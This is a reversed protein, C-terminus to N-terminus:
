LRTRPEVDYFQRALLLASITLAAPETSLSGLIPGIILISAWWAAPGGGAANAIRRLSAEAFSIIPRTSALAMIVVVFLPETYTVTENFYHTATDWGDYGTIALLLAIAWLGFIVEIEGLFHLGEARVSL